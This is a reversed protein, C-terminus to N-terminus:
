AQVLRTLSPVDQSTYYLSGDHPDISIDTNSDCPPGAFITSITGHRADVRRVQGQIQLIYLNGYGDVALGQPYPVQAKTAPGGDGTGVNRADRTCTGAVRRLVGAPSVAYVVHEYQDGVYCTGDRGVVLGFPLKLDVETAKRAPGACLYRPGSIGTGAVTTMTGDAIRVRRIVYNREDSVYLYQGTPDIALYDPHALGGVLTSTHGNRVDLYRIEGSLHDLFYLAGSPSVVVDTPYTFGSGDYIVAIAGGNGRPNLTFRLLRGPRGYTTSSGRDLDAIYVVGNGVATIGLPRGLRSTGRAVM